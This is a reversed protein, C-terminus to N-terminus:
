MELWKRFEPVRNASIILEKVVKKLKVSLRDNFYSEIKEIFAINIIEGRNIRFFQAPSIVEAIDNLTGNLPYKQQNQGFAFVVGEDSEFYAIEEIPLIHIGNRMKVTFRQKYNNVNPQIAARLQEILASNLTENPSSLEKKLTFFKDFSESVRQYDVPKLIYAIGNGQFAKLLFQDYATTFIIPSKVNIKSYLAFVNGDLLEIDSFILDPTPNKAFWVLADKISRLTAIIEFDASFQHIYSVLQNSAIAEDEIILIKM